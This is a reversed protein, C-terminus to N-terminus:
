FNITRSQERLFNLLYYPGLAAPGPSGSAKWGGFPNVGPWAGTTAGARRNVYTVGAEIHDLFYRVEKLDSSFIGATLGYSAQNCLDVAEDLSKVTAVLLIPVFMEEYFLPDRLNAFQGITPEAYFGYAFDGDTRVNGGTLIEGGAERVRGVYREYKRLAQSNIVPGLFIDRALPNGLKLRVTKELLLTLFGDAVEEMVYVRSCASCKQGAYGFASRVVGEAATEIDGHGTVVAPNKGGMETVVPKPYTKAFSRYIHMGVEYSGTFAIGATRPHDLITQGVESGSGVLLHFVGKPIGGDLLAQALMNGMIPAESSPKFVVTNGTVLAAAVMGTSLALPFNFPSIVGWVGYPLLQSLTKERPSLRRMPKRYGNHEEMLSCYYRILDASEEVEAMAELSNKGVELSM